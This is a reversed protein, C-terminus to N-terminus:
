EDDDDVTGSYIGMAKIANAYLEESRKDSEIKDTKAKTLKLQEEMMEMEKKERQSGLKLFHNITQSSATGDRLQQEARDYALAILQKERGEDTTAKHSDKIVKESM